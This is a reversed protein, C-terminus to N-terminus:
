TPPLSGDALVPARITVGSNMTRSAMPLMSRSKASSEMGATNPTM